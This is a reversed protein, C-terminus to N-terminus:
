KIHCQCIETRELCLRIVKQADQRGKNGAKGDRIQEIRRHIKKFAADIAVKLTLAPEGYQRDIQQSQNNHHNQQIQDKRLDDLTNNGQAAVHGGVQTIEIEKHLVQNILVVQLSLPEGIQYRDILIYKLPGSGPGGLSYRFTATPFTSIEAM